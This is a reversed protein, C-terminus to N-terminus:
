ARRFGDLQARDIHYHRGRRTAKLEGARLLRIVDHPTTGLLTAAGTITVSTPLLAVRELRNGGNMLARLLAGDAESMVYGPDVEAQVLDTGVAAASVTVTTPADTKHDVLVLRQQVMQRFGTALAAAQDLTTEPLLVGISDDGHRAAWDHNRFFRRALIGLRELLRDGAGFGHARNLVGMNDIDFLILAVGHQHRLSRQLEQALALDLAERSLLTTLRDRVMSHGDDREAFAAVIELMAGRVASAVVPWPESTAGLRDHLALEDLALREAWQAADIVQRVTLPPAYRALSVIAGTREDVEGEEVAEALLGMLVGACARWDGASLGPEGELAKALEDTLGTERERLATAAQERV